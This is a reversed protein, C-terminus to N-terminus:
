RNRYILIDEIAGCFGLPPQFGHQKLKASLFRTRGHLSPGRLARRILHPVILPLALPRNIASSGGNQLYRYYGVIGAVTNLEDEDCSVYFCEPESLPHDLFFMAAAAVDKAHIIHARESGKLFVKIKDLFNDRIAYEVFGPREGSVVFVPRLVCIKAELGSSIVLQEAAYKSKEYGDRPHCPTDEDVWAESCAGLIGASSFYCIYDLSARKAVKLISETANVNIEWIQDTRAFEAALHFLASAGHILKSLVGQDRIDGRIVEIAPDHASFESRTL